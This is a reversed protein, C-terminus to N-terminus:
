TRIRQKLEETLWELLLPVALVLLLLVKQRCHPGSWDAAAQCISKTFCWGLNGFSLCMIQLISWDYLISYNNKWIRETYKLLSKTKRMRQCNILDSVRESRARRRCRRCQALGAEIADIAVHWRRRRRRWRRRRHRKCRRQHCCFSGATRLPFSPAM